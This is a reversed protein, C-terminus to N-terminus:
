VLYSSIRDIESQPISHCGIKLVDDTYSIVTFNDIRHGIIDRKSKILSYLFKAEKLPVSANQSTQVSDNKIRLFVGDGSPFYDSKGAIWLAIKEENSKLKFAEIKAIRQKEKEIIRKVKDLDINTILKKMVSLYKKNYRLINKVKFYNFCEKYEHVARALYDDKKTKAKAALILFQNIQYTYHDILEAPTLNAQYVEYRNYHNLAQWARSIHKSTTSSYRRNSIIVDNPTIFEALLYHRGYSYLKTGEFFCNSSRGESQTQQAFIHIVEDSNSFVKKM